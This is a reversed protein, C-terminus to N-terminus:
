AGISLLELGNGFVMHRWAHRRAPQRPRHGAPGHHVQKELVAPGQQGGSLASVDRHHTRCRGAACARLPPVPCRWHSRSSSKRCSSMPTGTSWGPFAAHAPCRSPGAARLQQAHAPAACRPAVPTDGTGPRASDWPSRRMCSSSSCRYGNWGTRITPSPPAMSSRTRM